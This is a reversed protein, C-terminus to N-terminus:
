RVVCYVSLAAGFFLVIFMVVLVVPNVYELQKRAKVSSSENIKNKVINFEDWEGDEFIRNYSCIPIFYCLIYVCLGGCIGIAILVYKDKLVFGCIGCCVVTICSILTQMKKLVNAENLEFLLTDYLYSTNNAIKFSISIIILIQMLVMPFNNWDKHQTVIVVIQMDNNNIKNYTSDILYSSISYVIYIIWEYIVTREILTKGRKYTYLNMEKIERAINMQNTTLIAFICIAYSFDFNFTPTFSINTNLEKYLLIEGIIMITSIIILVLLVICVSQITNFQQKYISPVQIIFFIIILIVMVTINDKNTFEFVNLTNVLLRIISYCYIVNLVFYYIFLTIFFLISICKSQIHEKLLTNYNGAHTKSFIKTLLYLSYLSAILLFSYLVVGYIIGTQEFAFRMFFIIPTPSFSILTITSNFMSGRTIKKQFKQFNEILQDDYEVTTSYEPSEDIINSPILHRSTSSEDNFQNKLSSQKTRRNYM